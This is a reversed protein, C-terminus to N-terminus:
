SMAAFNVKGRFFTFYFYFYVAAFTRNLMKTTGKQIMQKCQLVKWTHQLSNKGLFTQRDKQRDKIPRGRQPTLTYVATESAACNAFDENGSIKRDFRSEAFAVDGRPKAFDENRLIKITLRLIQHVSM